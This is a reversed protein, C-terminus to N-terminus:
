FLDIQVTQFYDKYGCCETGFRQLHVAMRARLVGVM